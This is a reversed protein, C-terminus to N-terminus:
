NQKKFSNILNNNDDYFIFMTIVFSPFFFQHLCIHYWLIISTPTEQQIKLIYIISNKTQRYFLLIKYFQIDNKKSFFKM